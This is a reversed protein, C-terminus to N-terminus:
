YISTLEPANACAMAAM